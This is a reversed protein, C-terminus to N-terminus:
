DSAFDNPKPFIPHTPALWETERITLVGHILGIAWAFHMTAAAPIMAWACRSKTQTATRAAVATLAGFYFLPYAWFLSSIFIAGVVAGLTVVFHLPVILQRVRWSKPHRRMTRSRGRGYNFYQKWLSRLSSRPYNEIRINADLYIKGGIGRLRCDFEADENHTFTPDYQGAARFAEIHMIAHHGHDVFGSSHGGRHASGGSGIASNSVWSVAKRWCTDGITDMPVVVSQAEHMELSEVLQRIYGSPYNAHADCRVIYKAENGFLDVALNVGASQIKKPNPMLHVDSRTKSLATVIDITGDSSGGDAVIFQCQTQTPLDQSLTEIVDAIVAAENLTPIIVLISSM